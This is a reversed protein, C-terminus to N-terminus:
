GAAKEPARCLEYQRIVRGGARSMARVQGELGDIWAKAAADTVAGSPPPVPTQRLAAADARRIEPCRLPALDVVPKVPESQGCGAMM